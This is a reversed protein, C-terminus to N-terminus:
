LLMCLLLVDNAIRREVRARCEKNASADGDNVERLM